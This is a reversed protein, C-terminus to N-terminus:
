KKRLRYQHAELIEGKAYCNWWKIGTPSLQFCTKPFGADILRKVEKSHLTVPKQNKIVEIRDQKNTLDPCFWVAEQDTALSWLDDLRTQTEQDVEQSPRAPPQNGSPINVEVQIKEGPLVEPFSHTPLQMFFIDDKAESMVFYGYVPHFIAEGNFLFLSGNMDRALDLKMITM